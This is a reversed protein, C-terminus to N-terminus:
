VSEERVHDTSVKESTAGKHPVNEFLHPKWGVSRWPKVKARYMEDVEELALGKTEPIFFYVYFFAVILMGFFIM